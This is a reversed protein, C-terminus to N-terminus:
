PVQLALTNGSSMEDMVILGETSFIAGRSALASLRCSIM